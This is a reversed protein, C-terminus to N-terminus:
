PIPLDPCDDITYGAEIISREMDEMTAAASAGTIEVNLQEACQSLFTSRNGAEANEIVQWVGDVGAYESTYCVADVGSQMAADPISANIFPGDRYIDVLEYGEARLCGRYREFAANVEAETITGDLLEGRQEDSMPADQEFNKFDQAIDAGYIGVWSDVTESQSDAATPQCAAVLLACSAAGAAVQAWARITRTM